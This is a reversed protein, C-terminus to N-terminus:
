IVEQLICETAGCNSNMFDLVKRKYDASQLETFRKEFAIASDIQFGVDAQLFQKAEPFKDTKPGFIVALGFAAPELINHLGTRFAGGVYALDGYQYLNMLMGINDIILVDSDAKVSSYRSVKKQVRDEVSSIFGENIEHPALIVKWEDGLNNVANLCVQVDEEWVSGLILVKKEKVFEEVEDYRQVKKANAMVRDFRTDGSVISEIGIPELLEKSGENQVFIQDFSKLVKVMFGGYWKFFIQGPRFTASVCYLQAGSKKAEFLYNAWFEYKVFLVTTPRLKQLLRKANRKSDKPLYFIFDAGQYNKRVEYGSPSFFSVAIQCKEQERAAEILPRAQEFEGLSACHFWYLRSDDKQFDEVQKWVDKRGLVWKKAKANWLSTIRIGLVYLEVSLSYLFRM